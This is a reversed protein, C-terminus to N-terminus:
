EFHEIKNKALYDELTDALRDSRIERDPNAVVKACTKLLNDYTATGRKSLMYNLMMAPISGKMDMWSVEYSVSLTNEDNAQELVCGCIGEGRVYKKKRSSPPEFGQITKRLFIYRKWKKASFTEVKLSSSFIFERDSLFVPFSFQEHTITSSYKSKQGGRYDLNSQAALFQDYDMRLNICTIVKLLVDTSCAYHGVTRAVKLNRGKYGDMFRTSHTSIDLSVKENGSSMRKWKNGPTSEESLAWRKFTDFELDTFMPTNVNFESIYSRNSSSKSSKSSSGSSGTDMSHRMNHNHDVVNDSSSFSTRTEGAEQQEKQSSQSSKQPLHFHPCNTLLQSCHDSQLFLSWMDSSIQNLLVTSALEFFNKACADKTCSEQFQQYLNRILASPIQTSMKSASGDEDSSSNSNNSNVSHLSNSKERTTIATTTSATALSATATPTPTILITPSGGGNNNHNSTNTSTTPPQQFFEDDNDATSSLTDATDCGYASLDALHHNTICQPMFRDFLECAKRYRNPNSKLNAYEETLDIFDVLDTANESQMFNVFYPKAQEDDLVNEITLEYTLKKM